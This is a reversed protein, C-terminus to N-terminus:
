PWALYLSDSVWTHKLRSVIKIEKGAFMQSLGPVRSGMSHTPWTHISQGGQNRGFTVRRHTNYFDLQGEELNDVGLGRVGTRNYSSEGSRKISSLVNLSSLSLEHASPSLSSVAPIGMSYELCGEVEVRCPLPQTDPTALVPPM